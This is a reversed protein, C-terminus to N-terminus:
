KRGRGGQAHLNLQAAKVSALDRQTEALERAKARDKGLEEVKGELAAREAKLFEARAKFAKAKAAGPNEITFVALLCIIAAFFAVGEILAATLIYAGRIDNTAEPQRAISESASAGIRGIGFGAGIVVLGAGFAAGFFGWSVALVLM